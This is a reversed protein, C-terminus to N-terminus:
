AIGETGDGTDFARRVHAGLRKAAGDGLVPRAREIVAAACREQAAAHPAGHRSEAFATELEERILEEVPVTIAGGGRVFAAAIRRALIAAEEGSLEAAGATGYWDTVRSLVDDREAPELPTADYGASRLEDQVLAIAGATAALRLLVGSRDVSASTVGTIDDLRALM